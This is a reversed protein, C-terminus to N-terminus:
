GAALWRAKFKAMAQERMAEQPDVVCRDGECADFDNPSWEIAGLRNKNAHKLILTTMQGTDSM